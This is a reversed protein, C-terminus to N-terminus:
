DIFSKSSLFVARLLPVLLYTVFLMAVLLVGVLPLVSAPLAEFYLEDLELRVAVTHTHSRLRASAEGTLEALLSIPRMIIEAQGRDGNILGGADTKFVTKEVDLLHRSAALSQVPSVKVEFEYPVSGVYIVRLEYVSLPTLSCLTVLKSIALRAKM